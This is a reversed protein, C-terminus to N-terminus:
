LRVRIVVRSTFADASINQVAANLYVMWLKLAPGRKYRRKDVVNLDIVVTVPRVNRARNASEMIAHGLLGSQKSDLRELAGAFRSPSDVCLFSIHFLKFPWQYFSLSAIRAPM